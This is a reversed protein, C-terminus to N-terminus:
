DSLSTSPTTSRQAPAAYLSAAGDGTAHTPQRPALTFASTGINAKTVIPVASDEGTVTLDAGTDLPATGDPVYVIQLVRGRVVPSYSTAAGGSSTTVAVPVREVWM